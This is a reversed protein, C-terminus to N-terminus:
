LMELHHQPVESTGEPPADVFLRDLHPAAFLYPPLPGFIQAEEGEPDQTKIWSTIIEIAHEARAYDILIAFARRTEDQVYSTLFKAPGSEQDLFLQLAERLDARATLEESTPEARAADAGTSDQSFRAFPQRIILDGVNAAYSVVDKLLQDSATVRQRLDAEDVIIPWSAPLLGGAVLVASAATQIAEASMFDPAIPSAWLVAYLDNIQLSRLDSIDTETWDSHRLGELDFHPEEACLAILYDPM